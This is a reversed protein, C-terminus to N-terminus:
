LSARVMKIQKPENTDTWALYVAGERYALQPFGLSRGGEVTAVIASGLEKGDRSIRQVKIQNDAALWSLLASTDPLIQVDVRGVPRDGDIVIPEEWNKGGDHSRILKVKNQTEAGTFWGVAVEEGIADIAPGNVPCGKIEWGDSHLIGPQSWKGDEYRVFAIDRIEEQSRDRYVAVLGNETAAMGTQCCDCTRGDLSTREVVEGSASIKAFRLTMEEKGGHSDHSGHATEAYKRGDLWLLGLNGENMAAMSVFGHETETNDTHPVMSRETWKGTGPNYFKLHVEYSYIGEGKKQLYSIAKNDGAYSALNPFDAWNVFWNEGVAVQEPKSWEETYTAVQLLTTEGEGKSYWSMLFMDEGEALRPFFSGTDSPVEVEQFVPKWAELAVAKEQQPNGSCATFAAAIIFYGIHRKM